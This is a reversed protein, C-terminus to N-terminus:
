STRRPFRLISRKSKVIEIYDATVEGILDSADLVAALGRPSGKFDSSWLLEAPWGQARADGEMGEIITRVAEPILPSRSNPTVGARWEAPEPAVDDNSPVLPTEDREVSVPIAKAEPRTNEHAIDAIDASSAQAPPNQPNHAPKVLSRPAPAGVIQRWDIM